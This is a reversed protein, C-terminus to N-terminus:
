TGLCSSDRWGYADEVLTADLQKDTREAVIVGGLREYFARAPANQRLVWLSASTHGVASLENAMAAILSRGTGRGQHSRLVYIAGFEGTFGQGALADDRQEGCSGFGIVHKGDEAVLVAVCGFEDPAGLVQRWMARRADVSLRALMEDPVIGAYTEHWSAVHVAGLAEADAQNAKRVTVAAM